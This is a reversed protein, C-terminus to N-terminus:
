RSSRRAGRGRRADRMTPTDSRLSSTGCASSDAPHAKVEHHDDVAVDLDRMSDDTRDPMREMRRGLRLRNTGREREESM